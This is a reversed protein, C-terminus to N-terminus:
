GWASATMNPSRFAMVCSGVWTDTDFRSSVQNLSNTPRQFLSITRSVGDLTYFPQTLSASYNKSFETTVFDLSVRNGTGFWNSHSVNANLLVGQSSSYGVGVQFAGASRETVDFNVDVLDSEGAVPQAQVDAQEIFPLRALRVRSRAVESASFSAGEYQRMERRLAQDQTTANGRFNVDRVYYRSGPKVVLDVKVQRNAEDIDTM